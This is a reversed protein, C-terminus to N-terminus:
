QNYLKYASLRKSVVIKNNNVSFYNEKNILFDDNKQNKTKANFVIELRPVTAITKGKADKSEMKEVFYLEQKGISYDSKNIYIVVKSFMIQSIKSPKLECIFFEKNSKLKSEFGKLYNTLSLPSEEMSNSDKEISLAKEDHNIKVGYNKFSVFETNNIKFYNVNDKKLIMGNYQEHVEKTTYDLYLTYKSNYSVYAQKNYAEAAKNLVEMATMKEEQSYLCSFIFLFMFGFIKNKSNM